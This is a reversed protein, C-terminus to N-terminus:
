WRQFLLNAAVPSYNTAENLNAQLAPPNQHPSTFLKGLTPSLFFVQPLPFFFGKTIKGEGGGVGESIRDNKGWNEWDAAFGFYCCFM